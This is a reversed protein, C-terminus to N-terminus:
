PSSIKMEEDIGNLYIHRRDTSYNLFKYYLKNDVLDSAKIAVEGIDSFSQYRLISGQPDLIVILNAPLNASSEERVSTTGRKRHADVVLDVYSFERDQAVKQPARDAVWSIKQGPTWHAPMSFSLFSYFSSFSGLAVEAVFNALDGQNTRGEPSTYTYASQNSREGLSMKSFDIQQNEVKFKEVIALSDSFKDKNVKLKNSGSRVYSTKLFGAKTALAKKSDEDLEVSSESKFSFTRLASITQKFKNKQAEELKEQDENPISLSNQDGSNKKWESNKALISAMASSEQNSKKTQSHNILEHVRSDFAQWQSIREQIPLLNASYNEKLTSEIKEEVDVTFEVNQNQAYELLDSYLMDTNLVELLKELDKRLGIKNEDYKKALQKLQDLSQGPNEKLQKTWFDLQLVYDDYLAENKAFNLNRLHDEVHHGLYEQAFAFLNGNQIARYERDLAVINSLFISKPKLSGSELERLTKQFDAKAERNWNIGAQKYFGEIHTILAPAYLQSMLSNVESRHKLCHAMDNKLGNILTYQNRDFKGSSTNIRTRVQAFDNRCKVLEKEWEEFPYKEDLQQLYQELFAASQSHDFSADAWVKPTIKVLTILLMLSLTRLLRFNM